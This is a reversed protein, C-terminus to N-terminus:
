GTNKLGAAIGNITLFITELIARAEAGEPDPLSRLRRLLDVQIFNLPDVYPNRREISRRLTSAQGLIELQGTVQLVWHCTRQYANSNCIDRVLQKFDYNYSILKQGLEQFLEPNSAPNSVRIDDVPEILGYGFYQKWVRNVIVDSFRSNLPSTILAAFEANIQAAAIREDEVTFPGGARDVVQLVGVLVGHEVLPVSLLSRVDNDYDLDVAADFAPELHCDRVNVIAATRATLGLVGRERSARIAAQDPGGILVLDGTDPDNLWVTAREANLVTRAAEGIEALVDTLEFPAALKRTVDLIRLLSEPSLSTSQLM